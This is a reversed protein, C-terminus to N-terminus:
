RFEADRGGVGWGCAPAATRARDSLLHRVARAAYGLFQAPEAFQLSPIDGIRMYLEHVLATTDLTHSGGARLRRRAMIKLRSYVETFM